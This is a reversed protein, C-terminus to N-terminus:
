RRNFGMYIFLIGIILSLTTTDFHEPRFILVSGILIMSISVIDSSKIKFKNGSEKPQENTIFKHGLLYRENM